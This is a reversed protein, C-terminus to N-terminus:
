CGNSLPCSSQTHTHTHTHTDLSGAAGRYSTIIYTDECCYFGLVGQPPPTLPHIREGHSRPSRLESGLVKSFAPHPLV